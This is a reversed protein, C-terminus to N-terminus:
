LQIFRVIIAAMEARTANNKPMIHGANDGNIINSNICYKVADAAWDSIQEADSYESLDANEAKTDVDSGKYKAYRYLITAIQERTISTNPAFETESVGSIIGSEYGWAVAESYWEDPSVDTFPATKESRALDSIRHMVTIFM